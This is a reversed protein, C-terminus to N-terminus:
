QFRIQGRIEGGPFAATHINVYFLGNLLDVEKVVVGDVKLSGTFSGTAPFTVPNPASMITQVVGAPYSVPARGHIHMAVPVGTLGSWTFKYNLIQTERSYFVELSGLASTTVPPTEQAGSMVIGTKSFETIKKLENENECSSFGIIGAFLISAFATLRFLKM